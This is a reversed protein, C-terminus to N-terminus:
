LLFSFSVKKVRTTLDQVLLKLLNHLTQLEKTLNLLHDMYLPQDKICRGPNLEWKHDKAAHRGEARRGNETERESCRRSGHPSTRYWSNSCTTFLRYNKPRESDSSQMGENRERERFEEEEMEERPHEEEERRKPQSFTTTTGKRKM